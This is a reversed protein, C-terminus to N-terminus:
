PAAGAGGAALEHGYARAHAAMAPGVADGHVLAGLDAAWDTLALQAIWGAGYPDTHVLGPRQELAPNIAVISGSVPTKVAVISKALEVVAVTGVAQLWAALIVVARRCVATELRVCANFSLM